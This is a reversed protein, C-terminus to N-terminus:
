FGRSQTFIQNKVVTCLALKSTRESVFYNKTSFDLTNCSTNIFGNKYVSKSIYDQTKDTRLHHSAFIQFWGYANNAYILWTWWSYRTELPVSMRYVWGWWAFVRYDMVFATLFKRQNNWKECTRLFNSNEKFM